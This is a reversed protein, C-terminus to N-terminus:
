LIVQVRWLHSANETTIIFTYTQHTANEIDHWEIGDESEQWVFTYTDEPLFDVLIAVLEVEDGYYIPYRLIDLYVKRELHPTIDGYDDDEFEVYDTLDTPTAATEGVASGIFCLICAVLLAIFKKM